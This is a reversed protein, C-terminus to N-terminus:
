TNIEKITALVNLSFYERRTKDKGDPGLSSFPGPRSICQIQYTGDGLVPDSVVVQRRITADILDQVENMKKWGRTYNLCRVLFQGGPYEIVPGSMLRGDKDGDSDYVCVADASNEEPLHGVFCPWDAPLAASVLEEDLLMQRLIMSLPHKM